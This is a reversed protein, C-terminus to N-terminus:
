ETILGARGRQMQSGLLLEAISIPSNIGFYMSWVWQSWKWKAKRCKNIQETHVSSVTSSKGGGGGGGGSRFNNKMGLPAWQVETRQGRDRQGGTQRQKEWKCVAARKREELSETNSILTYSTDTHQVPEEKRIHACTPMEKHTQPSPHIDTLWVQM